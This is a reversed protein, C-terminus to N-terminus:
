FRHKGWNRYTEWVLKRDEKPLNHIARTLSVKRGKEKVFQDKSSLRAIGVFTKAEKNKVITAVCTTSKKDKAHSFSILIEKNNSKVKM